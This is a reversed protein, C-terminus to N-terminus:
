RHKLHQYVKLVISGIAMSISIVLALLVILTTNAIAHDYQGTVFFATTRYSLYGPVLPALTALIFVVSPTKYYISLFQSLCSGVIAAVFTAIIVNTPGKLLLYLLWVLMGLLSSVVLMKKQINLVILFLMSAFFSAVAQLLLTVFSM